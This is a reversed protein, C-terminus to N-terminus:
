DVESYAEQFFYSVLHQEVFHWFLYSFSSESPIRLYISLTTLSIREPIEVSTGPAVISYRSKPKLEM